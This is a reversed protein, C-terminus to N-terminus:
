DEPNCMGPAAQKAMVAELVARAEPTLWGEAKSMGDRQQPGIRFSRRRARDADSLEGDQDLLMALREAAERLEEPKLGGALSALQAEAAEREDFTVFSPLQDFFRRIIRVHEAGIEGRTQAAATGALVPELVEGSM